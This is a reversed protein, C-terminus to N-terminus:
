GPFRVQRRPRPNHAFCASRQMVRLPGDCASSSCADGCPRQCSRLVTCHLVSCCQPPRAAAVDGQADDELEFDDVGRSSLGSTEVTDPLARMVAGVVQNAAAAGGDKAGQV